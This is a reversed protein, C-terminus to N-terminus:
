ALQVGIELLIRSPKLRDYPTINEVHFMRDHEVYNFLESNEGSLLIIRAPSDCFASLNPLFEAIPSFARSTVLVDDSIKEGLLNTLRLAEIRAELVSANTLNLRSCVEKVFLAAKRRADVLFCKATPFLAALVVGPLGSGTGVDVFVSARPLNLAANISDFVHDRIFEDVSRAATLKHTRNWRVVM